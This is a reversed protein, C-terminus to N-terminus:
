NKISVLAKSKDDNKKRSCDIDIYKVLSEYEFMNMFSFRIFLM